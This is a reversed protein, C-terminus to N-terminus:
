VTADGIKKDRSHGNLIEIKGCLRVALANEIERYAGPCRPNVAM